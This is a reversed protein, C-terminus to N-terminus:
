FTKINFKKVFDSKEMVPINYSKAKTIKTSTGTFVDPVLVHTTKKTVTDGIQGGIDRIRNELGQDRFNTFVVVIDNLICTKRIEEETFPNEDEEIIISLNANTETYEPEINPKLNRETNTGVDKLFPKLTFFFLNFAELNELFKSATKSSFGNVKCIEDLTPPNDLISNGFHSLLLDLKKQGLGEGFCGSAVMIKSLSIESEIVAKINNFIRESMKVEFTPIKRIDDIGLNLIKVVSNYGATVLKRVTGEAIGKVGLTVFFYTIQKVTIDSCSDPNKLLIDVQSANWVYPINPMSPEASHSLVRQIKPIIEGARIVVIRSGINIKNDQIFKANNGNAWQIAAGALKVPNFRVRPNLYGHRTANWEVELVVTEAEEVVMKYAIAYAPNGSAELHTRDYPMNTQLIIGDISYPSVEFRTQLHHALTQDTMDKEGLTINHATNFGYSKLTAFNVAPTNQAKDTVIEYAVFEIDKIPPKLTKSNVVSVLVALSNKYVSAYKRNFTETKIILEGRINFNTFKVGSKIGKIKDAFYSIDAGTQGDGRTYMKVEGNKFCVLCSVGNLKDSVVFETVKDAVGRQKELWSQIKKPEGHKLKDMSNLLFPLKVMNDGDRLKCGIGLAVNRAKLEEIM